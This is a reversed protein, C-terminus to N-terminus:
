AAKHLKDAAKSVYPVCHWGDPGQSTALILGAGKGNASFEKLAVGPSGHEEALDVFTQAAKRTLDGLVKYKKGDVSYTFVAIVNSNPTARTAGDLQVAKANTKLFKKIYFFLADESQLFLIEM